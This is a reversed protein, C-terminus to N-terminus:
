RTRKAAGRKVQGGGRGRNGAAANASARTQVGYNGGHEETVNVLVGADDDSDENEHNETAIPGNGYPGLTDQPQRRVPSHSPYM